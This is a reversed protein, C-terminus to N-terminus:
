SVKMERTLVKLPTHLTRHVPCKDAIELLRARTAEDLDGQMKIEREIVDVKGTPSEFDEAHVKAHTLRVSVKDLIIKKHDAYMRLTMSTCAGLSALLLEYPSPGSGLGGYKQPEDAILMHRGGLLVRQQFKGRGTEWVEVVGSSAPDEEEMPSDLYREVWASIVGAVYAADQPGHMLHDADDLSVFSKPHKAAMFIREANEINVTEDYPSHFVILARELAGIARTLNQTNVDEIFQKTITFSGGGVNIKGSGTAEIDVMARGFHHTVQSPDAPAAITAVAKCEPVDHAAALVAAGGLSHGILIQPAHAHERLWDAAAVLDAINSTFNTNAFEGESSGLGTFDFRLVALGHQTLANALRSAGKLDKTCTFCHAFLAYARPTGEPLDLRAALKEGTGGVFTVKETKYAM